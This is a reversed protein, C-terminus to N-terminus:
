LSIIFHDAQIQYMVGTAKFLNILATQPDSHESTIFGEIADCASQSAGAQVLVHTFSHLPHNERKNPDIQLPRSEIEFIDLDVASQVALIV